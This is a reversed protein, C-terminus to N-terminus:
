RRPALPTAAPFEIRVILGSHGDHRDLLTIEARHLRTILQVISLGLGSGTGSEGQRYFREFVREKQADDLGPGSDIVKVVTRGALPELTLTVEGGPPTYRLANDILNRLLLHLYLASGEVPVPTDPADLGLDIDRAIAFDIQDAIVEQSLANLDVRTTDPLGERPDLRSLQLLQEVMRHMWAVGQLLQACSNRSQPDDLQQYLNECHLRMAALPTRLEHSADAAFRRERAFSQQLRALLANLARVLSSVENPVRQLILPEFHDSSRTSVEHSIARLPRLSRGIQWWIAVGFLMLFILLPLTNTLALKYALEHRIRHSQTIQIHRQGGPEVLTFVRWLAGELDLDHYRSSGTLATEIQQPFSPSTILIEGSADVIRFALQKEYPHAPQWQVTKAPATGTLATTPHLQDILRAMQAMQADFLEEAEDAAAWFSLAATILGTVLGAGLLGFSLTRRISTM